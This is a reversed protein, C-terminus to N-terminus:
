RLSRLCHGFMANLLSTDLLEPTDAPTLSKDVYVGVQTIKEIHPELTANAEEVGFVEIGKQSRLLLFCHHRNIAVIFTFLSCPSTIFRHHSLGKRFCAPYQFWACRKDTHISM